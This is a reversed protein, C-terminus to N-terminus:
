GRDFLDPPDAQQGPVLDHATVGVLRYRTGDIRPRLVPMVAALITEARQTPDHLRCAHTTTYRDHRRLKLTLSTAALDSRVLREAVRQSIQEVVAMIDEARALDKVFTREAGVSVNRGRGFGVRRADEGHARALLSRGWRGFRHTLEDLKAARLQAITAYGMEELKRTMVPGICPLASVKMPALVVLKDSEGIVYFGRPKGFDSAIKALMKNPALGISITVGVRKEVQLALRALSRAPPENDGCESLDLYAEDISVSEVRPSLAEMLDRIRRSERRYKEMDPKIVAAGPCLQLARAMPMASRVGYRRAIYCATLVVGRQSGGVILPEDILEPHDRKEVSAYFADCDVHAIALAALEPHAVIRASGCRSCAEPVPTAQAAAQAEIRALTGCDRCLSNPLSDTEPAAPASDMPQAFGGRSIPNKAIDATDRLSDVL